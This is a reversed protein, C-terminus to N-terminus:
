NKRTYTDIKKIFSNIYEEINTYGDRDHDGNAEMKLNGFTTREWTDDMGDQDSDPWPTGPNLIPWGGVEDQSDILTGSGLRVDQVIREDVADRHPVVAGANALVLDFVNDVDDIQVNSLPVVPEFLRHSEPGDVALWDDGSNTPRGPGINDRVYLQGTAAWTPLIIGRARGTNAGAKYVNGIVDVNGSVSTGIRWNYVVNNIVEANNGLSIKPNRRLNHAFLNHHISINNAHRAVLLGCSHDRGNQITKPHTSFRLGESIICWLVTADHSEFWFQVNEDISWSISCHDIIINYVTENANFIQIGDRNEPNPGGPDDGVRVRLGRIIVDHTMIRIAAGKILIGGGPATQGAVTVYPDRVGINRTLEITGGTRFVVIRPGSAQLAERLSGPGSPDLNTVVYVRGGRGGPTQSGFGEAGPFSPIQALVNIVFLLQTTVFLSFLNSSVFSFQVKM